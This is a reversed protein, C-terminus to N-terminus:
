KEEEGEVSPELKAQNDHVERGSLNDITAGVDRTLIPNRVLSILDLYVKTLQLNAQRLDKCEEKMRENEDRLKQNQEELERTENM